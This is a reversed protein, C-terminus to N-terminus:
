PNLLVTMASDAPLTITDSLVFASEEWTVNQTTLIRTGTRNGELGSLRVTREAGDNLFILVLTGDPKLFAGFDIGSWGTVDSSGTAVRVDGTSLWKTFHGMVYYRKLVSLSQTGDKATDWYVLGDNYDGTSVALWWSWDVADIMTLDRLIVKGLYLGSEMTDFRGWQLECFETSSVKFDPYHSDMFRSFQKRHYLSDEAGYAHFSLTDIKDFYDYRSMAELYDRYDDRTVYKKYNGSEFADLRFDTGHAANWATLKRYFVDYFAALPEPDYHCGEQSAGDGGWDWQPENIPSIYVEPVVPLDALHKRYLAGVIILLYDAFAEYSSEKLNNQQVERGTCTGSKTMLYHPSNAFFVVRRINGTALSAEFMQQVAVDRTEFDYNDPNAFDADTRYTEAVFFSEARRAKDFWDNSYPLVNDFRTEASGAGINYRFISLELGSEGYLLDVAGSRADPTGTAGLQLFTWASSAGFGELTQATKGTEVYLRIPCYAALSYVGLATGVAFVAVILAVSATRIGRRFSPTRIKASVTDILNRFRHDTQM